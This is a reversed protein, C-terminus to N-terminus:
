DLSLGCLRACAAVLAEQASEDLAAPAIEAPQQDVYYGGRGLAAPDTGVALWRYTGASGTIPEAADTGGLKTRIWRPALANVARGTRRRAVALALMLDMLKSDAYAQKGDWPRESWALDTVDPRGLHHGRSSVYILRDAPPLIATLVYPALVNVAFVHEVGDTTLRHPEAFGLGANHIVADPRGIAALGDALATCGAITSLDGLVVGAAAPLRSTVEAARQENRAHLIVRHGGRSLERAAELGIGDTSGTILVTSIGLM